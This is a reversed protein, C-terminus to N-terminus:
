DTSIFSPHRLHEAGKGGSAIGPERDRRREGDRELAYCMDRIVAVVLDPEDLPIWHGSASAVIHRGRTSLRALAEQQRLRYEGPDTQSITVLPLDGYGRRAADLVEASSDCISEIQSGLADYFKPQTWFRRLPRRAEPPLKWLPALIGEDERSLGGRSVASALARASSLAGAEVLWGALRALGMRAAKGGQRCLRVGRDIKVREKPVPDVWDEPHASDVLVLGVVDDPHRAAFVRMVLGGFSHGVLLYPPPEGARDLLTRLEGVIRGVTRPLPGADSWGFGARDYSCVRTFRAVAPQVLAWSISSGGLAADLVVTPRGAGAANLHLRFGAVDILRGPPTLNV